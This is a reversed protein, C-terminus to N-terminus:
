LKFSDGYCKVNLPSNLNFNKSKLLSKQMDVRNNKDDGLSGDKEITKQKIDLFEKLWVEENGDNSPTKSKMKKFNDFDGFNLVTDYLIYKALPTKLGREAAYKMAPDWYLKNIVYWVASNWDNDNNGVKKLDEVMGQLGTTKSTGDVKKVSDIYKVLPHKPNLKKLRQLVQILDGTGSCFGVISVTYGRGDKINEIYNYYKWWNTCSNEAICVLSLIKDCLELPMDGSLSKLDKPFHNSTSNKSATLLPDEEEKIVLQFKEVNETLITKIDEEPVQQQLQQQETSM